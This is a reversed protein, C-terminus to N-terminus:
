DKTRVKSFLLLGVTFCRGAFSRDGRRGCSPQILRPHDFGAGDARGKGAGPIRVGGRARRHRAARNQERRIGFGQLWAQFYGSCGPVVAADFQREFAERKIKAWAERFSQRDAELDAGESAFIRRIKASISTRM